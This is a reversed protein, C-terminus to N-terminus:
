QVPEMQSTFYEREAGNADLLGDITAIPLSM